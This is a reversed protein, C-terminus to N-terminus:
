LLRDTADSFEPPRVEGPVKSSGTQGGLAGAEHLRLTPTAFVVGYPAESLTESRGVAAVTAAAADHVPASTDIAEWLITLVREADDTENLEAPLDSLQPVKHILNLASCYSVGTNKRLRKALKQDRTRISM